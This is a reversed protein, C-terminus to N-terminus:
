ELGLIRIKKKSASELLFKLKSIWKKLEDQSVNLKHVLDLPALVEGGFFAIRKEFVHVNKTYLDIQDLCHQIEKTDIEMSVAKVMESKDSILDRTSSESADKISASRDEKLEQIVKAAQDFLFDVAKVIISMSLPDLNTM